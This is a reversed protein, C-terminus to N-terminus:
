DGLHRQLEELLEERPMWEKVDGNKYVKAIFPSLRDRAFQQMKPFAEQFSDIMDQGSLNQSALVFMRINASAVALREPLRKGIRADKTLVVWGRRGVEPLWDEDQASQPFHDDHIEITIGAERLATVLRVSGLCRDIFFVTQKAETM